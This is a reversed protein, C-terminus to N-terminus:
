TKNINQFSSGLLVYPLMFSMYIMYKKSYNDADDLVYQPPLLTLSLSEKSARGKIDFGNQCM